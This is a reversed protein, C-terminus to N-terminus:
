NLCHANRLRFTAGLRWFLGGCDFSLPRQYSVATLGTLRAGCLDSSYNGATRDGRDDLSSTSRPSLATWIMMLRAM